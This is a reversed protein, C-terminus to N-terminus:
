LYRSKLKKDILWFILWYVPLIIPYLFLSFLIYSNAKGAHQGIFYPIAASYLFWSLLFILPVFISGLAVVISNSKTPNNKRFKIILLIHLVALIGGTIYALIKPTIKIFTQAITSIKPTYNIHLIETPLKNFKWTTISSLNGNKPQGLNTSIENNFSTADLTVNLTGFSKWYKAPSLAYRFSYKKVWDWADSWRSARYNVEIKHTGKTIDTEFYIMDELSVYFGKEPAEELLISKPLSDASAEFFYSFNKFKTHKPINFDYSFDDVNIEKGDVKISFSDLYESAYFLFPIQMGNESSHINYVVKFDAYKFNESIKIYIDEHIVDVYKSVFPSSGLTGETIPNAMNAFVQPQLLLLLICAIRKM